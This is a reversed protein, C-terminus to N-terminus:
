AISDVHCFDFHVKLIIRDAFRAFIPKLTTAIQPCVVIIKHKANRKVSFCIIGPIFFLNTEILQIIDSLSQLPENRHKIKSIPSGKRLRLACVTGGTFTACLVGWVPNQTSHHIVDVTSSDHNVSTSQM